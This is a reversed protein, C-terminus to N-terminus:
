HRHVDRGGAEFLRETRLYSIRWGLETKVFDAHYDGSRAPFGDSHADASRDSIYASYYGRVSARGPPQLTVVLNCLHHRVIRDPARSAIVARIADAGEVIHGQRSWRADPTLLSAAADVNGADMLQMFTLLQQQCTWQDLLVTELSTDVENM